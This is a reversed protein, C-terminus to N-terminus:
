VVRENRRCFYEFVASFLCNLIILQLNTISLLIGLLHLIYMLYGKQVIIKRLLRVKETFSFIFRFRKQLKVGSKECSNDFM